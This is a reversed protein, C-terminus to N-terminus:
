VKTSCLSKNQELWKKLTREEKSSPYIKGNIFKKNKFDEQLGSDNSYLLRAGSAKALAIIHLDNSEIKEKKLNKIAKNIKDDNCEKLRGGLVAEPMWKRFANQNLLEEKLKGGFVLHRKPNIWDLFIKGSM